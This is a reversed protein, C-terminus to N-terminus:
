DGSLKVLLRRGNFDIIFDRETFLGAGVIAFPTDAHMMTRFVDLDGIMFEENRWHLRGITVKDARLRGVIETSEIAGSLLEPDDRGVPRLGLSRAAALNMLNLSAGLDFVAPITKGAIEIDFFYLAAVTEGIYEPRLPVSTWGRYRRNEVLQPPYLRLARDHISFGVAYRRLFDVGLIGDIGASADTNGPLAALRANRWRVDGLELQNINLLPFRGSTVMGHITVAKGPLAPLQLEERLDDFVVSISAATDLAFGFPGQGDVKAEVVIRGNSKVDYPVVALAGDEELM